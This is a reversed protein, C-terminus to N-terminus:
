KNSTRSYKHFLNKVLSHKICLHLSGDLSVGVGQQQQLFLCKEKASQVVVIRSYSNLGKVFSNFKM